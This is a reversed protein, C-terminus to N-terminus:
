TCRSRAWWRCCTSRLAASLGSEPVRDGLTAVFVAEIVGLGGPVHIVAGAVAATLLTGLVVPYPLERPLLMWIVAGILMWHAMSVGIQASAVRASPLDVTVGPLKMKRKKGVECWLVYLAAVVLLLVGLGQWLADDLKLKLLAPPEFSGSALLLGALVVYGSWNTILSFAFIRGTKGVDLGLKSYLRWRFGVGGVLAGLNLNVAYSVLGVAFVKKRAVGHGLYRRALLDYSAYMMHSATALVLAAFLTTLPYQLLAQWVDHWHIKRARDVIFWAALALLAIAFGHSLWRRWAVPPHSAPEREDDRLAQEPM